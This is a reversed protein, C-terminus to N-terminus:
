TQLFRRVKGLAIYSDGKATEKIGDVVFLIGEQRISRPFRVNFDPNYGDSVVRARLKKGEQVCQILVGDGVTDTTELDALTLSSKVAKLNQPKEYTQRPQREEGPKVLRRINGSVRYFSQNASLTIEDVIYTVGEERISRPFQVNLNPDYGESIVKIRLKGGVRICQLLIGNGSDSIAELSDANGATTGRLQLDNRSRNRTQYSQDRMEKRISRNFYGQNLQQSYYELQSIEEAIEFFEILAKEKLGEIIEQLKKSAEQYKGQDALQIAEDKVQAIRFQSTKEIVEPNPQLNKSAEEDDVAITIPIEGDLTKISDNIVTDYRYSLTLIESKGIKKQPEISLSLALPKNETHYVDGLIVETKEKKITTSYNNLVEKITVNKQPHLTVILNQTVLSLLSEMEIHFVDASDDPSQIFYFNGGAADAMGILLDENFNSGFGLTTTVIGQQAKEAATKLLIEPKREGINALGDTLLLVRNLKDTSLHSKVQSCGLLWGGSLNTCGRARIKKIKAKIEQKNTVAQHPVIVEAVDDYIIVSLLDDPSLFDVLKETAQIANSLAYGAMSGSRDLVVSLNLPRRPVLEVSSEPKFNVLLDVTTPTQIPILSQSLTYSVKM